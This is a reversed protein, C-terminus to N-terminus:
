ATGQRYPLAIPLFALCRRLCLGLESLRLLLALLFVFYSQSLRMSDSHPAQPRALRKAQEQKKKKRAIEKGLETCGQFAMDIMGVDFDM